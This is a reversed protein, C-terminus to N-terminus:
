RWPVFLFEEIQFEPSGFTFKELGGFLEVLVEAVLEGVVEIPELFVDFSGEPLQLESEAGRLQLGDELGYRPAVRIRFRDKM